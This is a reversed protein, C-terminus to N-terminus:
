VGKICMETPAAAAPGAPSPCAGFCGYLPYVKWLPTHAARQCGGQWLCLRCCHPAIRVVHKCGTAKLGTAGMICIVPQMGRHTGQVNLSALVNSIHDTCTVVIWLFCTKRPGSCCLSLVPSM